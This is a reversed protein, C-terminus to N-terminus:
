CEYRLVNGGTWEATSSRSDITNYTCILIISMLVVYIYFVSAMKFCVSVQIHKVVKQALDNETSFQLTSAPVSKNSQLQLNGDEFYHVHVQCM